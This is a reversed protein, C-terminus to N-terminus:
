NPTALKMKGEAIVEDGIRVTMSVLSVDGVKAGMAISTRLEEGVHPLRYIKYKNITGILGIPVKQGRMVVDYGIHLAGSQATHELLAADALIGDKVFISDPSVTLGTESTGAELDFSVLKDVMMIPERQPIFKGIEEKGSLIM